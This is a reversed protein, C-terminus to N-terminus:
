SPNRMQMFQEGIRWSMISESLLVDSAQRKMAWRCLNGEDSLAVAM